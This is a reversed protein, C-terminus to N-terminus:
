GTTNIVNFILSSYQLPDIYINEVLRSPYNVKLYSLKDILIIYSVLSIEFFIIEWENKNAFLLWVTISVNHIFSNSQTNSNNKINSSAYVVPIRGTRYNNMQIHIFPTTNGDSSSSTASSSSLSCSLSPRNHSLVLPTSPSLSDNEIQNLSLDSFHRQLTSKIPIIAPPISPEALVINRLQHEKIIKFPYSSKKGISQPLSRRAYPTRRIYPSSINDNPHYKSTEDFSDYLRRINNKFSLSSRLPIEQKHHFPKHQYSYYWSFIFPDSLALPKPNSKCWKKWLFNWLVFYGCLLALGENTM